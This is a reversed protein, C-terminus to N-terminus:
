LRDPTDCGVEVDVHSGLSRGPVLLLLREYDPIFSARLVDLGLDEV